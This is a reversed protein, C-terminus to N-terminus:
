KGSPNLCLNPDRKMAYLSKDAADLLTTLSTGQVQCVALGVSVSLPPLTPDNALEARLRARARQASKEGIEPLVLIFEDWAYRATIDTGRSM